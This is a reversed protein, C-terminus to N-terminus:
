LKLEMNYGVSSSLKLEQHTSPDCFNRKAPGKEYKPNMQLPDVFTHGLNEISESVM